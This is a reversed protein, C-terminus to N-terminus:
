TNITDASVVHNPLSNWIPIVRRSTFSLKRLDYILTRVQVQTFTTYKHGHWSRWGTIPKRHRPGIYVSLGSAAVRILDLM